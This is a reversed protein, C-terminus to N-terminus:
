STHYLWAKGFWGYNIFRLIVSFLPIMVVIHICLFISYGLITKPANINYFSTGYLHSIYLGITFNLSFILAMVISPPM